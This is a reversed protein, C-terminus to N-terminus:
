LKLYLFKQCMKRKSIENKLFSLNLASFGAPYGTDPRMPYGTKPM